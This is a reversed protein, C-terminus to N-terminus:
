SNKPTVTISLFKGGTKYAGKFAKLRSILTAKTLSDTADTDGTKTSAPNTNLFAKGWEFTFTTTFTITNSTGDASDAIDVKFQDKKDPYLTKETLYNSDSWTFSITSKNGDGIFSPSNIYNTAGTTDSSNILKALDEGITFSFEVGKLLSAIKVGTPATFTTKIGFSLDQTKNDGNTFNTGNGDHDFSVSLDSAEEDIKTTLTNDVVDGVNVTINDVTGPTMTNIVFSAFGVSVLSISATAILGWMIIKNRKNNKKIM